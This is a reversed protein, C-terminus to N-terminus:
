GLIYKSADKHNAKELRLLQYGSEMKLTDAKKCILLLLAWEWFNITIM